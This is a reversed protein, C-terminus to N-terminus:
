FNDFHGVLIDGVMGCYDMVHNQGYDSRPASNKIETSLMHELIEGRINAAQMVINLNKKLSEQGIFETLRQPRLTQELATEEGQSVPSAISNDDEQSSNIM